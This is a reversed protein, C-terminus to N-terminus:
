FCCSTVLILVLFFVWAALYFNFKMILKVLFLVILDFLYIEVCQVLWLIGPRIQVNFSESHQSLIDIEGSTSLSHQTPFM